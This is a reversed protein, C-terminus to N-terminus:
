SKRVLTWSVTSFSIVRFLDIFCCTGLQSVIRSRDSIQQDHIIGIHYTEHIKRLGRIIRHEYSEGDLIGRDVVTVPLILFVSGDTFLVELIYELTNRIKVSLM